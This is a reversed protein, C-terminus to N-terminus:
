NQSEARLISSKQIEAALDPHEEAEEEEDGREELRLPNPLLPAKSGEIFHQQLGQFQLLENAGSPMGLGASTALHPTPALGARSGSRPTKEGLDTPVCHSERRQVAM